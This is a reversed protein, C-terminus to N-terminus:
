GAAMPLRLADMKEAALKVFVPFASTKFLRVTPDYALSAMDLTVHWRWDDDSAIGHDYAEVIRLRPAVKTCLDSSSADAGQSIYAFLEPIVWIGAHGKRLTSYANIETNRIVVCRRASLRINEFDIGRADKGKDPPDILVPIRSGLRLRRANDVVQVDFHRSDEQPLVVVWKPDGFDHFIFAYRQVPVTGMWPRPVLFCGDRLEIKLLLQILLARAIVEHEQPPRRAEVKGVSAYATTKDIRQQISKSILAITADTVCQIVPFGAARLAVKVDEPDPGSLRPTNVVALLHEIEGPAAAAADVPCWQAFPFMQAMLSALYDPRGLHSTVCFRYGALAPAVQSIVQEHMLEQKAQTTSGVPRHRYLPDFSVSLTALGLTSAMRALSLNLLGYRDLQNAGAATRAKWPVRSRSASATAYALAEHAESKLTPVLRFRERAPECRVTFCRATKDARRIDRTYSVSRMQLLWRGICIPQLRVDLMRLSAAGRQWSDDVAVHLAGFYRVFGYPAAEALDQQFFLQALVEVPAGFADKAGTMLERCKLSRLPRALLLWSHETTRVSALVNGANMQTYIVSTWRRHTDDDDTRVLRGKAAAARQRVKREDLTVATLALSPNDM